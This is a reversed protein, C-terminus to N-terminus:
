SHGHPQQLAHRILMAISNERVERQAAATIHDIRPQQAATKEQLQRAQALQRDGETPEGAAHSKRGWLPM